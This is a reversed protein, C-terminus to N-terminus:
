SEKEGGGGGGVVVVVWMYCTEGAWTNHCDTIDQPEVTKRGQQPKSSGTWIYKSDPSFPESLYLCPAPMQWSPSSAPLSFGYISTQASSTFTKLIWLNCWRTKLKSCHVFFLFLTSSYNAHFSKPNTVLLFKWLLLFQYIPNRDTFSLPCVEHVKNQPPLVLMRSPAHLFPSHISLISCLPIMTVPSWYYSQEYISNRGVKEM